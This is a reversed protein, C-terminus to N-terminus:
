SPICRPQRRHSPRDNSPAPSQAAERSATCGWQAAALGLTSAPWDGSGRTTRRGPLHTRDRIQAGVGSITTKACTSRSTYSRLQQRNGVVTNAALMSMPRRQIRLSDPVTAVFHCLLIPSIRLRFRHWICASERENHRWFVARGSAKRSSEHAAWNTAVFGFCGCTKAM